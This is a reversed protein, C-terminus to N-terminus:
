SIGKTLDSLSVSKFQSQVADEAHDFVNKLLSRMQCSVPCGRTAKKEPIPFLFEQDSVANYIDALSINQAGRALISGGQKGSACQILGARALLPLMRRVVVANTGISKALEASTMSEEQFALSTMIHIAVAIRTNGSM